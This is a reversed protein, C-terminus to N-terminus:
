RRPAKKVNRISIIRGKEPIIFELFKVYYKSIPLFLIASLFNFITHANAILRNSGQGLLRTCEQVITCFQPLTVLALAVGLINYITHAWATRKGATGSKFGAIQAAICSGINDGLTLAVASAFPMLGSNFLIITMGVTASSSQVLATVTLGTVLCLFLNDAHAQLWETLFANGKIIDASKGMLELGSFLLGIGILVDGIVKLKKIPGFGLICGAILIYRSYQIINFSMFQATFTTGINAGFIIGVASELGMIGSDVFGVTLITVATSSQVLGTLLIGALFSTLENKSLLRMAKKLLKSSACELAGGITKVGIIILVSGIIFNILIVTIEIM